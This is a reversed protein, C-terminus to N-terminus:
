VNTNKGNIKTYTLEATDQIKKLIPILKDRYDRIEGVRKEQLESIQKDKKYLAVIAISLLIGLIGTQALPTLFEM